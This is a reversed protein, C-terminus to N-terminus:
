GRQATRPGLYPFVVLTYTVCGVCLNFVGDLVNFAMLFVAVAISAPASVGLLVLSSTALLFGVRWAFIKPAKDMPEPGVGAARLAGSALRSIPAKSSTMVRIIYDLEVALLIVWAGTLAYALLLVATLTASVRSSRKDIVETSIPCLLNPM